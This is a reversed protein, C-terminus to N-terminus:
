ERDLLTLINELEKQVRRIRESDSTNDDAGPAPSEAHAIGGTNISDKGSGARDTAEAECPVVNLLPLLAPTAPTMSNLADASSHLKRGHARKKALAASSMGMHKRAGAITYGDEYLLKRIELILEIDRSRYIRQGNKSKQPTLAPFVTEWFRLVHAEVGVIECVERMKYYLKGPAFEM